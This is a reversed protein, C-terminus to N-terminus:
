GRWWALARELAEEPSACAVMHPYGKAAARLYNRGETDSAIAFFTPIGAGLLLGFECRSALARSAGDLAFVVCGASRLGAHEWAVLADIRGQLADGNEATIGSWDAVSPDFHPVGEAVLRALLRARWPSAVTGYLAIPGRSTM